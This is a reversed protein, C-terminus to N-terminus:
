ARCDCRKTSYRFNHQMEHVINCVDKATWLCQEIAIRSCHLMAITILVKSLKALLTTCCKTHQKKTFLTPSYKADLPQAVNWSCYHMILAPNWIGVSNSAPFSPVRCLVSDMHMRDMFLTTNSDTFLRASCGTLLLTTRRTFNDVRQVVGHEM